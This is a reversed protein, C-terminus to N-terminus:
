KTEVMGAVKYAKLKQQRNRAIPIGFLESKPDDSIEVGARQMERIEEWSNCGASQLEIPTHFEANSPRSASIQREYSKVGCAPCKICANTDFSVLHFFETDTHKCETCKYDYMPM